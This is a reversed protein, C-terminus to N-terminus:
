TFDVNHLRIDDEFESSVVRMEDEEDDGEQIMPPRRQEQYKSHSAPHHHNIGSEDDHYEAAKDSLVSEPGPTPFVIVPALNTVRSTPDDSLHHRARRRRLITWDQSNGKSLRLHTRMFSMVIVLLLILLLATILSIVLIAENERASRPLTSAQQNRIECHPGSWGNPCDCGPDDTGESVYARCVGHNVCFYLPRTPFVEGQMCIDNAPHECSDGAFVSPQDGHGITEDAKSCDCLYDNNDEICTSGHLCYHENNGCTEVKHECTLGIFGQPCVCHEFYTEHYTKNLHAVGSITDQYSGNDKVGKACSGGNSCTLRCIYEHDDENEEGDGSQEDEYITLECRPGFFGSPCRCTGGEQCIGNNVCFDVKAMTGEPNSCFETSEYQCFSGDYRHFDDIATSCNCSYSTTDGVTTVLCKGGHLCNINGCAEIGDDDIAHVEIECRMGTWHLPCECGGLINDDPCQGGNVCFQVGALDPTDVDPQTCILTAQYECNPGAFISNDDYALNCDCYQVTSKSGDGATVATSVCKGGNLCVYDGCEVLEDLVGDNENIENPDKEFECSLGTWSTPCNCGQFADEKCAGGNVCFLTGELSGGDKPHTCQTTARYQCSHGAYQVAGDIASSCDCYHESTKEEDSSVVTVTSCKGGNYCFKDGCAVGQDAHSDDKVEVECITGTFGSPCDCGELPNDRCTGHNLCVHAGVMGGASANPAQCVSTSKYSCTRGGYIEVATATTSCDCFYVDEFEGTEDNVENVVECVGGNHCFIDGCAIAEKNDGDQGFDGSLIDDADMAFECRFGAWGVPCDCGQYVNSKCQGGQVCFITKEWGEGDDPETCFTTVEHECEAGAFITEETATTSCDCHPVHRMQGDEEIISSICTGGNKCVLKSGCEETAQNFAQQSSSDNPSEALALYECRFGEFGNPCRCGQQVNQRCSGHNTCFFTGQLSGGENEPLACIGTSKYECSKGAYLSKDNFATACDCYYEISSTTGGNLDPVKVRTEICTGGNYCVTDGCTPDQNTKHETTHIECHLGAWGIPCSCYSDNSSNSDCVGGNVCFRIEQDGSSACVSTSKYQCADGAFAQYLAPKHATTCDCIDEVGLTGDELVIDRSTCVSDNLCFIEGCRESDYPSSGDDDVVNNINEKVSPRTDYECKHGAFGEPCQCPKTPDRDCSGGNTCFLSDNNEDCFASSVEQCYDGAFRNGFRDGATTCDCNFETSSEEHITTTTIVCTGGHFCHNEGCEEFIAQCLPGGYGTPCLCRMHESIEEDSWIRRLLDVEAPNRIGIECVGGNDCELTCDPIENEKFECHFGAWGEACLCGIGDNSFVM